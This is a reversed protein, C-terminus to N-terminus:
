NPQSALARLTRLQGLKMREGPRKNEIALFHGNREWLMDVDTCGGSCIGDAYDFREPTCNM